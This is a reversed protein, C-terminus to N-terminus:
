LMKRTRLINAMMDHVVDEKVNFIIYHKFYGDALYNEAWGM